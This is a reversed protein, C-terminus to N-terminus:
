YEDLTAWNVVARYTGSISACMESLLKRTMVIFLLSSGSNLRRVSEIGTEDM